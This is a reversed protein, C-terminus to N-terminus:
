ISYKKLAEVLQKTTLLNNDYLQLYSSTKLILCLISRYNGLSFIFKFSMVHFQIGLGKGQIDVQDTFITIEDVAISLSSCNTKIFSIAKSQCVWKTTSVLKLTRLKVNTSNVIKKFVTYWVCSGEVFNYILQIYSFINNIYYNVQLILYLELIEEM